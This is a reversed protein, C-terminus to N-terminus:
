LTLLTFLNMELDSSVLCSSGAMGLRVDRTVVSACGSYRRTCVRLLSSYRTGSSGAAEGLWPLVQKSVPSVPCKSSGSM